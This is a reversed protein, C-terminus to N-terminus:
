EFREPDPSPTGHKINEHIQKRGPLHRFLGRGSGKTDNETRQEELTM